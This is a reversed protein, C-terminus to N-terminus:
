HSRCGARSEEWREIIAPTRACLTSANRVDVRIKRGPPCLGAIHGAFDNVLEDVVEVASSQLGAVALSHKEREIALSVSDVEGLAVGPREAKAGYM